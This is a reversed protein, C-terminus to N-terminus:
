ASLLRAKVGAATAARALQRDATLLRHQHLAAVALHLADLTSLPVRNGRLLRAAEDFAAGAVPLLRFRRQAIHQDLANLVAGGHAESLARERIRRAIASCFEVRTLPSVAPSTNRVAADVSISLREPIYLAVLASTDIYTRAEPM